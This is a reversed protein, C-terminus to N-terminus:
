ALPDVGRSTSQYYRSFAIGGGMTKFILLLLDPQPNSVEGAPWAVGGCGPGADVSLSVNVSTGPAEFLLQVSEDQVSPKQAPLISTNDDDSGGNHESFGRLFNDTDSVSEEANPKNIM